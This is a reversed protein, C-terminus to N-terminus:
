GHIDFSDVTCIGKSAMIAAFKPVERTPTCLLMVDIGGICDLCDNHHYIGALEMDPSAKIAEEAARGINGYGLIAVKIMHNIVNRPAFNSRKKSNHLFIKCM